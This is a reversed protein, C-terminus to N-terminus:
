GYHLSYYGFWHLFFTLLFLFRVEPLTSALVSQMTRTGMLDPPGGHISVMKDLSVLDGKDLCISCLKDMRRHVLHDMVMKFKHKELHQIHKYYKENRESCTKCEFKEEIPNSVKQHAKFHKKLHFLKPFSKGCLRCSYWM